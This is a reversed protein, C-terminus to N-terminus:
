FALHGAVKAAQKDSVPNFRPSFRTTSLILDDPFTNLLTLTPMAVTLSTIEQSVHLSSTESNKRNCRNAARKRCVLEAPRRFTHGAQEM